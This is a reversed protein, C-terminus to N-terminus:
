RYIGGLRVVAAVEAVLRRRWPGRKNAGAWFEDRVM